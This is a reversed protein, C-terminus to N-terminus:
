QVLSDGEVTVAVGVTGAFQQWRVVIPKLGPLTVSYSSRKPLNTTDLIVSCYGGRVVFGRDSFTATGVGHGENDIVPATAGTVNAFAGTGRCTSEPGTALVQYTPVRLQARLQQHGTQWRSGVAVTTFLAALLVGLVIKGSRSPM